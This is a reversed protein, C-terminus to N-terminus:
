PKSATRGLVPFDITAGGCRFRTPYREEPYSFILWRPNEAGSAYSEATDIQMVPGNYNTVLGPTVHAEGLDLDCSDYHFTRKVPADNRVKLFLHLFRQGDAPTYITGVSLVGAGVPPANGGETMSDLRVTWGDAQKEIPGQILSTACGALALSFGLGALRSGRMPSM